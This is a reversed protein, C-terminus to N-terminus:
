GETKIDNYVEPEPLESLQERAIEPHPEETPLNVEPFELLPMEVTEKPHIESIWSTEEIFTTVINSLSDEPLPSMVAPIGYSALIPTVEVVEKVSGVQKIERIQRVVQPVSIPSSISTKESTTILKKKKMIVNITIDDESSSEM